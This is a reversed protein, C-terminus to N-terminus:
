NAAEVAAFNALEQAALLSNADVEEADIRLLGACYQRPMTM